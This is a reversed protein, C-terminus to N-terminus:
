WLVNYIKATYAILGADDFHKSSYQM